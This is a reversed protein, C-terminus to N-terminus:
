APLTALQALAADMAQRVYDANAPRHTYQVAKRAAALHLDPTDLIRRVAKGFGEYPTFIIGSDQWDGISPLTSAESIMPIGMSLPRLCRNLELHDTEYYHMNVVYRCDLLQNALAAGYFGSIHKVRVGEQALEDLLRQRRDNVAGYFALDHQIEWGTASGQCLGPTPFLPMELARLQPVRHRIDDINSESWDFTVYRALFDLYEQTILVSSSGLQEGNFIICNHPRAVAAVEEYSHAFYSGVGFLVNVTAPDPDVFNATIQCDYGAQRLLQQMALMMDEFTWVSLGHYKNIMVMNIKKM